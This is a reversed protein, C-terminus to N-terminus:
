RLDAALAKKADAFSQKSIQRVQAWVEADWLRFIDGAAVVVVKNGLGTDDRLSQPILIRGQKDMTVMQAPAVHHNRFNEVAPDMPPLKDFKRILKDWEPEPYVALCDHGGEQDTTVVLKEVAAKALEERIQAPVSTRGKADLIQPYIGMLRM